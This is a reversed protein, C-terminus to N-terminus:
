LRRQILVSPSGANYARYELLDFLAMHYIQSDEVPEPWNKGVVGPPSQTDADVRAGKAFPHVSIGNTTPTRPSDAGQHASPPQEAAQVLVAVLDLQCLAAVIFTTTIFPQYNM